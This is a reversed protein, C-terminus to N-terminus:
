QGYEGTEKNYLRVKVKLSAAYNVDKEKAEEVTYKSHPYRSFNIFIRILNGNFDVIYSFYRLVEALGEELLVMQIFGNTEINTPIEFIENNITFLMRVQKGTEIPNIKSKKM